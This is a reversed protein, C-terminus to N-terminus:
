IGNVESFSCLFMPTGLFTFPEKQTDCGRLGSNKLTRSLRLCMMPKLECVTVGANVSICVGCHRQRQTDFPVLASRQSCVPFGM